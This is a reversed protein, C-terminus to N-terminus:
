RGQTTNTGRDQPQHGPKSHTCMVGLSVGVLILTIALILLRPSRHRSEEADVMQRVLDPSTIIQARPPPVPLPATGREKPPPSPRTRAASGAAPPGAPPASRIRTPVSTPGFDDPALPGWEVPKDGLAVRAANWFEGASRFRQRCDMALAREFVREVADDINAGLTRPTPRQVTAYSTVEEDPARGTIMETLIVALAFVDTWPGVETGSAMLQEPAAYAPAFYMPGISVAGNSSSDFAHSVLHATGFDLLHISPRVAGNTPASLFVNSPKVDLHALDHAHLSELAAAVPTLLSMVSPLSYAGAGHGREAVLIVRLSIGELWDFVMYPVWKGDRTTLPGVDRPARIAPTRTTLEKLTTRQQVFRQLLRQRTSADYEGLVKFVQMAVNSKTAVDVARYMLSYGSEGVVGKVLYKEAVTSGVLHFHDHGVVPSSM